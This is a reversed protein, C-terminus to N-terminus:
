GLQYSWIIKNYKGGVCCWLKKLFRGGGGGRGGGGVSNIFPRLFQRNLKKIARKFCVETLNLELIRLGNELETSEQVLQEVTEFDSKSHLKIQPKVFDKRHTRHM